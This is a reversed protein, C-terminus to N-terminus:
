LLYMSKEERGCYYIFLDTVLLYYIFLNIYKYRNRGSVRTIMTLPPTTMNLLAIPWIAEFLRPMMDKCPATMGFASSSV